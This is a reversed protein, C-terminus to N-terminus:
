RLAFVEYFTSILCTPFSIRVLLTDQFTVNFTFVVARTYEVSNFLSVATGCLRFCSNDFNFKGCCPLMAVGAQGSHRATEKMRVECMKFM